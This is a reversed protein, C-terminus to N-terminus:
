RPTGVDDPLPIFEHEDGVVKDFRGARWDDKAREIRDLSSSVFNWYIHRDGDLAAGGLLMADAGVRSRLAVHAGEPLVLLTGEGYEPGDAALSVSGSAVYVAREAHAEDVTLSANPALRAHVYLTPSLVRV